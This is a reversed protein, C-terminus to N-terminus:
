QQQAPYYYYVVPQSYTGMPQFGQAQWMQPDIPGSAPPYFAPMPAYQLPQQPVEPAIEVEKHTKVPEEAVEDAPITIGEEMLSQKAAAEARAILIERRTVLALVAGVVQLLLPVITVAFVVATIITVDKPAEAGADCGATEQCDHLVALSIGVSTVVFSAIIAVAGLLCVLFFFMLLATNRRYAGIFGAYLIMWSINAAIFPGAWFQGHQIMAHVHLGFSLLSLFFLFIIYKQLKVALTGAYDYRQKTFFGM